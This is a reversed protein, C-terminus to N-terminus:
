NKVSDRMQKFGVCSFERFTAPKDDVMAQRSLAYLREPTAVPLPRPLMTDNLRFASTCAGIALGLSLIAAASTVKRKSLQRWGFVADARLSELWPILRIERGEENATRSWVSM